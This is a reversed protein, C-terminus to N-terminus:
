NLIEATHRLFYSERDTSDLLVERATNGDSVTLPIATGAPGYHWLSRFFEAM